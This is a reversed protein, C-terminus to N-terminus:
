TKRVVKLKEWAKAERDAALKKQKARYTRKRVVKPRTGPEGTIIKVDIPKTSM